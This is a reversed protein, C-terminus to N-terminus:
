AGVKEDTDKWVFEAVPYHMGCAACFTAGYFKPDRAYTEALKRGMTTVEGCGSALQAETWFCGVLPLESEPYKEYKVYGYKANEIKEETTLDRLPYKPRVGVHRYSDRFPRVWNKAREEDSLIWYDKHMGTKPDIPAPAGIPETTEPPKGSLTVKNENM